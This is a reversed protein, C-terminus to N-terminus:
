MEGKRWAAVWEEANDNPGITGVYNDSEEAEVGPSAGELRAFRVRTERPEDREKRRGRRTQWRGKDLPERVVDREAVLEQLLLSPCDYWSVEATKRNATDSAYASRWGSPLPTVAITRWEKATWRRAPTGPTERDDM